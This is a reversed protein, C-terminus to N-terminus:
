AVLAPVAPLEGIHDLLAAHHQCRRRFRFGHCDCSWATVCHLAGPESRSTAFYQLNYSYIQVGRKHAEAALRNIAQERTEQQRQDIQTSM